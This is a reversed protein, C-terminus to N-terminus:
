VRNFIFSKSIPNVPGWEDFRIQERTNIFESLARPQGKKPHLGFSFWDDFCVISGDQLFEEIFNLACLTPEYLDCDLYLVAVKFNMRRLELRLEETLSDEYFGPILEVKSLDVGNRLLNRKVEDVGFAFQGRHFVGEEETIPAPLGEFSDFGWYKRSNNTAVRLSKESEHFALVFSRGRYVGFECYDGSVGWSEVRVFAESFFPLKRDEKAFRLIMRIFGQSTYRIKGLVRAILEM